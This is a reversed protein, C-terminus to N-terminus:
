KRPSRVFVPQHPPSPPPSVKALQREVIFKTALVANRRGLPHQGKDNLFYRDYRRPCAFISPPPRLAVMTVLERAGCSVSVCGSLGVHWGVLFWGVVLM